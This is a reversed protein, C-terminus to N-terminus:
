EHRRFLSLLLAGGAVIMLIPVLGVQVQFLEWIGGMLFLVGVAVWFKEIKLDYYKRAFQEFLIIAAVGILGVGWSFDSLLSVGVWVFLLGWSVADLRKSLGKRKEPPSVDSEFNNEDVVWMRKRDRVDSFWETCPQWWKCCLMADMRFTKGQAM